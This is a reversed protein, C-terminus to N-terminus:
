ADALSEAGDSRAPADAPMAHGLRLSSVLAGAVGLGGAAILAWRSAQVLPLARFLIAVLVAGLSQGITRATALAGGIAGSRTRPASLVITRNNPSQFFGFGVGCVAARWIIGLNDIGPPMAALLFLGAAMVLLGASNLVASPIRDALVGALAAALATGIPWPTMLIGTEVMSRGLGRQFLFPLSVGAILQACFSATSTAISLGFLPIRLLDVPFLPASQDWGRRVVLVGCVAALALLGCGLLLHADRSILDAGFVLAGFLVASLVAGVRDFPREVTESRPLAFVGLALVFICFPVNVAFLWRWSAVSLIASAVAPAAATSVGVVFANGGLARGIMRRPYTHRVLAANMSMIGAAGMGQLGRGLALIPLSPAVICVISALTFVTMGTMYVRRYGLTEGCAALPLLLMVMGLQYANIVWISEAATTNLQRALTPLAVNAISSDLVAMVMGVLIVAISWYRQPPPLGDTETTHSGQTVDMVRVM